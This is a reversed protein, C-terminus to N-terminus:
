ACPVAMTYVQTRATGGVSYRVTDRVWLIGNQTPGRVWREAVGRNVATANQISDCPMSRMWELRSQIVNAAISQKAGGGVQRTVVAATSALGLLGVALIVVAVMMEILTFGARRAAPSDGAPAAVSNASVPLHRQQRLM